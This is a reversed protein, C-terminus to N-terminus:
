GRSVEWCKVEASQCEGALVRSVQRNVAKWIAVVAVPDVKEAEMGDKRHLKDWLLRISPGTVTLNIQQGSGPELRVTSRLPDVAAISVAALTNNTEVSEISISM